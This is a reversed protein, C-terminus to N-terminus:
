SQKMEPKFRESDVIINIDIVSIGQKDDIQPVTYIFGQMGQTVCSENM